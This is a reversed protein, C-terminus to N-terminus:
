QFSVRGSGTEVVDRREPDGFVEVGGSGTLVIDVGETATLETSGSGSSIVTAEAAILDRAHVGGSGSHTYDVFTAVGEVTIPGSGTSEVVLSESEVGDVLVEGSGTNGIVEIGGLDGAAHIGSSGSSWLRDVRPLAVRVVCDTRPQLDGPGEQRVILTDGDVRTEIVDLLNDDCEVEVAFDPGGIVDVPVEGRNEVGSFATHDRMETAPVGNGARIM